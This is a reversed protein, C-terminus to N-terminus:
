KRKAKRERKRREARTETLRTFPELLPTAILEHKQNGIIIGREKEEDLGTVIVDNEPMKALIAKAAAMGIAGHGCVLIRKPKKEATM